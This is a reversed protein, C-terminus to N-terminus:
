EAEKASQQWDALRFISELWALGHHGHREQLKWFREAMELALPTDALATNAELHLVEGEEALDGPGDNQALWFGDNHLVGSIALTEPNDDEKISPLPRSYGHHSGVLHLVLDPDHANELLRANSEALVVSSFEHRVPPWENTKPRANTLSKAVPETAGAISVPDHGHMQDQFRQEVKGLDHLQGALRLDAVLADSLGLRRGYESAMEGVGKLHQRLTTQTGTLSPRDDLDDLLTLDVSKEVLVYYDGIGHGSVSETLYNKDNFFKAIEQLWKPVETSDSHEVATLWARIMEDMARESDAEQAPIPPDPVTCGDLLARDLRLAKRQGYVYQAQDGVDLSESLRPEPEEGGQDRKMPQYTPDWTGARLGGLRPEVILVDNPQVQAVTHVREVITSGRVWKVVGELKREAPKKRKNKEPLESNNLDGVPVEATGNLWGKVASIPVSLYEVARPPVLSIVDASQDLRWVISVEPEFEQDKGHLFDAIPPDVIPHPGTQSWADVHTPLLLPAESREATATEGLGDLITASPGVDIKGGESRGAIESLQEWAIRARDGYVPDPKKPNLASMVGLIWCRAANGFRLTALSGIRRKALAGRRDLRGLRQRLSDIPAAETILADFSFDAGVEIAQTAVVVTLEELPESREPDVCGSEELESLLQLRDLPRMRGTVLHTKIGKEQLALFVERATHVRNVVVGVSKEDEQLEGLIKLVRKPVTEHAPRTGGVEVLEAQKPAEAIQKLLESNEKDAETLAFKSSAVQTPTASMEVIQFRRPLDPGVSCIKPITGNSTIDHLTAAFATSLHVEDLIVLCDTGALGAHIPQTRHSVGYGRFLLRSGFQDITSVMVWPQDPRRFWEGDLPIGSGGKLAAVGLPELDGALLKLRKQMELLVGNNANSIACSIKEAHRYVQDVVIRRDIVFVIRRPFCDPRVALAFLAIDLVATKGTGTPLDIVAPWVGEHLVQKSLRSQWPYPEYGHIALFYADFDLETLDTM